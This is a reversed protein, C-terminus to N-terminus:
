RSSKIAFGHRDTGCLPCKAPATKGHGSYGCVPCLWDVAKKPVSADHCELRGILESFLEEHNIESKSINKFLLAIGRFGEDLATSAYRAYTDSWQSHENDRALILNDLVDSSFGAPFTAEIRVDGKELCSLLLRTHALEQRAVDEFARGIQEYGEAKAAEAYITYRAFDQSEGAFAAMLNQRTTSGKITKTKM